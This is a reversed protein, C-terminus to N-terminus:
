PFSLSNRIGSLPAIPNVFVHINGTVVKGQLDLGGSRDAATSYNVNFVEGCCQQAAADSSYFSFSLLAVSVCITLMERLEYRIFKSM